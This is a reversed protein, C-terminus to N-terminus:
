PLWGQAVCTLTPSLAIEDPAVAHSAIYSAVLPSYGTGLWYAYLQNNSDVNMGLTRYYQWVLQASSLTIDTQKDTQTSNFPTRGNSGYTSVMTALTAQIPALVKRPRYVGIYATTRQWRTVPVLRVGYQPASEYLMPVGDITGYYIAAHDYVAAWNRCGPIYQATTCGNRQSRRLLIDGRKLTQIWAASLRRTYAPGGTIAITLRDSLSAPRVAVRDRQQIIERKLLRQFLADLATIDALTHASFLALGVTIYDNSALARLAEPSLTTETGISRGHAQAHQINSAPGFFLAVAIIWLSLFRYM